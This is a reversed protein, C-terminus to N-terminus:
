VNEYIEPAKYNKLIEVIEEASLDMINGLKYKEQAKYSLDCVPLIDGKVNIYLDGETICLIDESYSEFEFGKYKSELPKGWGRGMDIVHYSECKKRSVFHNTLPYNAQMYEGWDLWKGLAKAKDHFSDESIEIQSIENSGCYRIIREISDGIGPLMSKGNTVMYVSDVNVQNYFQMTFGVDDLQPKALTIEGGSLTLTSIYHFTTLSKIIIDKSMSKNQANGRLCHCCNMNCKRTLELILNSIQVKM